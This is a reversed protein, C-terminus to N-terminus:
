PKERKLVILGVPKDKTTELKEPRKIDVKAKEKKSPLLPFCIKLEDGKLEYICPLSAKGKVWEMHKPKKSPDVTIEVTMVEKEKEGTFFTMKGGKVRVKEMGVQGPTLKKGAMEASSAKWAGELKKLEAKAAKDDAKKDDALAFGAVLLGVALLRLWNM